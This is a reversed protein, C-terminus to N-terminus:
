PDGGGNPKPSGKGLPREVVQDIGYLLGLSFETRDLGFIPAALKTPGHEVFLGPTLKVKAAKPSLRHSGRLLCAVVGV